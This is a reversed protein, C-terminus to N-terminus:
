DSKYVKGNTTHHHYDRQSNNCRVIKGNKDIHHVAKPKTNKHSETCFCGINRSMRHEMTDRGPMSMGSMRPKTDHTYGYSNVQKELNVAYGLIWSM